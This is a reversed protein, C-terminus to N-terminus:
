FLMNSFEGDNPRLTIVAIDQYAQNTEYDQHLAVDEIEM